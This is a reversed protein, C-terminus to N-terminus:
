KWEPAYGRRRMRHVVNLSFSFLAIVEFLAIFAYIAFRTFASPTPFCTYGEELCQQVIRDLAVYERMILAIGWGFLVAAGVLNGFITQKRRWLPYAVVLAVVPPLIAQLAIWWWSLRDVSM